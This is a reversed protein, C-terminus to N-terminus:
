LTKSVTEDITVTRGYSDIILKILTQDDNLADKCTLVYHSQSIYNTVIKTTTNLDEQVSIVELRRHIYPGYNLFIFDGAAVAFNWDVSAINDQNLSRSLWFAESRAEPTKMPSAKNRTFFNIALDSAPVETTYHLSARELNKQLQSAPDIVLVSIMLAGLPALLSLMPSRRPHTSFSHFM